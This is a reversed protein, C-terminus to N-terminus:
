GVIKESCFRLVAILGFLALVYLAIKFYVYASNYLGDWFARSHNTKLTNKYKFYDVIELETFYVKGKKKHWSGLQVPLVEYQVDASEDYHTEMEMLLEIAFLEVGPRNAIIRSQRPDDSNIQVDFYAHKKDSTKNIISTLEELYERKEEAKLEKIKKFANM